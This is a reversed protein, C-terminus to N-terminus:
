CRTSTLLTLSPRFLFPRLQRDAMSYSSDTHVRQKCSVRKSKKKKKDAGEAKPAATKAAKAPAKSAAPAKSGTSQPAQIICFVFPDPYSRYFVLFSAALSVKSAVASKPAM